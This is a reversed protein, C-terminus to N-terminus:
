EKQREKIENLDEEKLLKNIDVLMKVSEGIKGMGRIFNESNSKKITKVDDVKSEPINLVEQVRDVILGTLTEHMNVVIICTRDDYEREELKFRLRVDILPIVKGRLNIVGKVFIDTDPVSTIKQIRIIERVHRIEIAYEEESVSFTLYKDKQTDEDELFELDQNQLLKEEKM